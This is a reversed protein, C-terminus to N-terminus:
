HSSSGRDPDRGDDGPLGGDADENGFINDDERDVEKVKMNLGFLRNADDLGAQIYEMCKDPSMYTYEDNVSVEARILNEGKKDMQANNKVGCLERYKAEYWEILATCATLTDSNTAIPLLQVKAADFVGSSIIYENNEDRQDFYRKVTNVVSEEAVIIYPNKINVRCVDLTRMSDAIASSFFITQNIFPYRIANEWVYVGRAQGQKADILGTKNLFANEDSGPIFLKVEKNFGISSNRTFVFAAGPDGNINFNGTPAGPLAFIGGKYEFFVVGGYWLLSQLVVRKSVTDPLGDFDYRHLGDQVLRAFCNRFMVSNKFRNIKRKTAKGADGCFLPINWYGFDFM